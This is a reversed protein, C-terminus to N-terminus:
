QSLSLNIGVYWIGQPTGVWIACFATQASGENLTRTRASGFQSSACLAVPGQAAIVPGTSPKSEAAEKM